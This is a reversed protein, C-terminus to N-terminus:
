RTPERGHAARWAAPSVGHMRRFTRHFHSPSAYGVKEAVVDVTDDGRLLLERAQAMRANAIWAGVSEGTEAKVRTALHSPARGVARAVDVLSLPELAHRAIHDLARAVIPSDQPRPAAVRVARRLLATLVGLRADTLWPEAPGRDESLLTLTRVLEDRDSAEPRLVPCAGEGVSAFLDRLAPGWRTDPVCSMCVGVGVYTSPEHDLRYHPAGEPVLFVDGTALTWASGLHMVGRGTLLVAVSAHTHVM